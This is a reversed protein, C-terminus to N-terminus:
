GATEFREQGIWVTRSPKYLGIARHRGNLKLLRRRM